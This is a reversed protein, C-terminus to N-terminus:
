NLERSITSPSVGVIKAIREQSTNTDLLAKIQYKEAQALQKYISM